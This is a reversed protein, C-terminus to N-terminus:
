SGKTAVSRWGIGGPRRGKRRAEAQEMATVRRAFEEGPILPAVDGTERDIVNLRSTARPSWSPASRGM